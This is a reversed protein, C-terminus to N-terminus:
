DPVTSCFRVRGSFAGAYLSHNGQQYYAASDCSRQGAAPQGQGGTLIVCDADQATCAAALTGLIDDAEYGECTIVPIGLLTLLQKVYPLQMALEEPMGKRNAKYTAVAKHRFTPKRLDFAVAVADPQVEDRNKLYINMFGFIAHTFVGQTNSLPRIGYFARNLISNGDIALLKM